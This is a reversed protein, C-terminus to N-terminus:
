ETILVPAGQPIRKFAEIVDDNTLRICGHSVPTGIASEGNTGHIYINRALSDVNGGQNRGPEEGTLTLIRTLVLDEDIHRGPKWMEATAKRSRFVQGWTAGDGLKAAVSHWGTPTQMSEMECGAGRAATSCPAQWVVRDKEIVRLQQEPISVWVATADGARAPWDHTDLFERQTADLADDRIVEVDPTETDIEVAPPVVLQFGQGKAYSATIRGRPTPLAVKIRDLKAPVHPAFRVTRWGPRAPTLGMVQEVILFIPSSSWPHCWSTNWKQDPGWAEMCTTAGHQLMEHWSHEDTSTILDYGLEPDGARFCAAIVFPAIYVGCSLRKERILALAADVREPPTIGFCLPLANAHLSHHTSGPADVFLGTETDFLREVFAKRVREARDRYRTADRGLSELLGAATDLSAVYFANLVANERTSAYDYDYGDRLNKPWDVLVWKDTMNTVLGDAGEFGAFYDFLRDFGADVMEITFARDGTQRFYEALILPWQLSYEAIEQMFSGPAVAMIGPCIRQSHQFDALAKRTLSGDGTLLLHAHGTILADGLYQGKERTPCDLFGGQAGFKVGNRCLAWIDDLLADSSVLTAADAPYPHHRVMVWVEPEAPANLIEIYRFARYDYSEILDERGSLVPFDQYTCNCRMEFRVTEPATLEEGHRVELAHGAPGQIRICTHGVIETPFAYFYRGDGKAVTTEPDVRYIDLPPTIARTFVHDQRSTLPPKWAADDFGAERWGAPMARMDVDEAFQTDYGITRGTPYAECHLCRWSADTAFRTTTGDAYTVDLSLVFGARNDASNWVRNRLGQYYAHAAIANAGPELFPRADLEYYPYAFPYGPEPGQVVFRGNIYLKVYDDATVRLLASVPAGALAIEKRFFTHVNKPGFRAPISEKGRDKHYYDITKVGDFVPDRLWEADGFCDGAVPAAVAILVVGVLALELM